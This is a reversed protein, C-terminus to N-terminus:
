ALYYDITENAKQYSIQEYKKTKLSEVNNNTARIHIHIKVNPKKKALESLQYFKTLFYSDQKSTLNFIANNKIAKWNKWPDSNNTLLNKLVMYIFPDSEFGDGMLALEDPIGTMLLIDILQNLKYFGQKKLDKTSLRGDFISFFDRYDKLFIDSVFLEHQYLWDRIPAEYFHPSASLIFPQFEKEMYNKLLAISPEVSPFYALPRNLSYYMEKPTSYKTDVLTKDFDSIVLKKPEKIRIPYYSGLHIEVGTLMSTEYVSLKEINNVDVLAPIRLEFNGFNDSDYERSLIEVQGENFGRIRIRYNNKSLLALHSIPTKLSDKTHSYTATVIARISLQDNSIIASFSALYPRIM